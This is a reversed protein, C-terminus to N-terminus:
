NPVVTLACKQAADALIKRGRLLASQAKQLDALRAAEDKKFTQRYRAQIQTLEDRTLGTTVRPAGLVAALAEEDNDAIAESIAKNRAAPQMAALARRIESLRHEVRIDDTSPPGSTAEEIRRIERTLRENALDCAQLGPRAAHQSDIAAKTNQGALSLSADAFANQTAKLMDASCRQALGLAESAGRLIGDGQTYQIANPDLSPSITPLPFPMAM